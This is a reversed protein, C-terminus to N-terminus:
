AARSLAFTMGGVSRTDLLTLGVEPCSWGVEIGKGKLESLTDGLSAVNLSLHHMGEGQTDLHEQLPGGGELVQYVRLTTDGLDCFSAKFGTEIRDQHFFAHPM